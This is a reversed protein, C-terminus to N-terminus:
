RTAIKITAVITQSYWHLYLVQALVVQALVPKLATGRPVPLAHDKPWSFAQSGRELLRIPM